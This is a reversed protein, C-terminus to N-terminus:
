TQMAKWVDFMREMAIYDKENDIDLAAGGRTTVAYGVRNGLIEGIAVTVTDISVHRRVRDALTGLGIRSLSMSLQLLFYLWIKPRIPRVTWLDRTLRMVNGLKKQYRSNYLKQVAERNAFAFPRAMHMNNIRYLGERFHFYAMTIGPAGSAQPAFKDLTEKPTLGVVYDYEGMDAGDFFEDIEGTSILPSDCGVAFIVRNTIEPDERGADPEYGDLTALFGNWANSLLSDWQELTVIPKSPAGSRAALAQDLRGKDGIVFIRRIRDVKEMAGLAHAFLPKGAVPLFAKSEGRIPRSAGRDGCFLLADVGSM